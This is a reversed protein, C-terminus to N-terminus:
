THTCAADFQRDTPRSTAGPTASGLPEGTLVHLRYALWNHLYHAYPLKGLEVSSHYAAIVDDRKGEIEMRQASYFWPFFASREKFKEDQRGIPEM